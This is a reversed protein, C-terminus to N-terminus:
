ANGFVERVYRELNKRLDNVTRYAAMNAPNGHTLVVHPEKVKGNKTAYKGNTGLADGYYGWTKQKGHGQGYSGRIMGNEAALPHNDPYTVGTGFEIFLVTTGSAHIRASYTGTPKAEVSVDNDGDYDANMFRASEIAYGDEVLRQVLLKAGRELWRKYDEVAKIAEDIGSGDIGIVIKKSM